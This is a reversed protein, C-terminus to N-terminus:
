YLTILRIKKEFPMYEFAGLLKIKNNSSTSKEILINFKAANHTKVYSLNYIYNMSIKDRIIEELEHKELNIMESKKMIGTKNEKLYHLKREDIEISLENIPVITTSIANLSFDLDKNFGIYAPREIKYSLFVGYLSDQLSICSYNNEEFAYGKININEINNRDDEHGMIISSKHKIFSNALTMSAYIKMFSSYTVDIYGIFPKFKKLGVDFTNLMKKTLNNIYVFYFQNSHVYNYNNRIEIESIFEKYLREQGLTHDIYDGCLISHSSQRDFLPIILNFVENGYWNNTIQYRDFVFIIEKKEISPTLCSKLDNYNISKSKLVNVTEQFISNIETHMTEYDFDYYDFSLELMINDRADITFITNLEMLSYVGIKM